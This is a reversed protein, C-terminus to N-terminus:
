RLLVMKRTETYIFGSEAELAKISYFYVGSSITQNGAEDFDFTTEYRGAPLDKNVLTAIENGLLDYIKITVFSRAAIQWNIKTSPNFPNPYNQSLSYTNIETNGEANSINTGKGKVIMQYNILSTDTDSRINLTDTIVDVSKPSFTIDVSFNDHPQITVPFDQDIYFADQSHFIGTIIVPSGSNNIISFVKQSSNGLEVTGFNLTDKSTTFLGSKWDDKFVRYSYMQSPYKIELDKTGDPRVETIYGGRVWNIITNGNALRRASGMAQAFLDPTNRFQWALTAVHNEEDLQYEVARSFPPNHFNGNDFFLINGNPIRRVDHQHYFPLGEGIFTFENGKGGLRWIIEGTQRSIKTIEDLHRSSLLLNGDYDVDIANSHIYDIVQLTLDISESADTVPIYDLSKWQFIVNKDKDLEQILFGIVEANPQGGPVIQSMDIIRPDIGLLYAHENPLVLLEHLDTEFGNGCEFSDVIEYLNNLAYFKDKQNDFYTITGNPQRKFDIGAAPLENYYIPNGNNEIILNAPYDTAGFLSMFLKGDFPSDNKQIVLEPFNIPLSDAVRSGKNPNTLNYIENAPIGLEDSFLKLSYKKSIKQSAISFSFNDDARFTGSLYSIGSLDVSIIDGPIFNKFPTFILTRNDDSLSIKGEVRGSHIGSVRILDQPILKDPDITDSLRVVINNETSNDISGLKPSVYEVSFKNTTQASIQVLSFIILITSMTQFLSSRFYNQFSTM